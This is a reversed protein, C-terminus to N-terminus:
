YDKECPQRTDTAQSVTCKKPSLGLEGTAKAAIFYDAFIPM